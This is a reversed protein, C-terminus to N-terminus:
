RVGFAGFAVSTVFGQDSQGYIAQRAHTLARAPSLGTALHRHLENMLTATAIDPVPIVSAIVSRTGGAFLASTFGLLEDGPRATGVGSDCAALVMADPTSRLRELDYVTLPGSYLELSSFMPNDARLRGHCAFHALSAGDLASMVDDNSDQGIMTAGPHWAASATIEDDAAVLRPGSCFVAREDHSPEPRLLLSASPVVTVVTDLESDPMTSLTAWPVAHLAAPAVIVVDGADGLGAIPRILQDSLVSLSREASARAATRVSTPVDNRSLRRLSFALKQQENAVAAATAELTWLRFRGGTTSVAALRGDVIVYSLLTRDGLAALIATTSPGADVADEQVARRTLARVRDELEIQRRLLSRQAGEELDALQLRAVVGRLDDLLESAGEPLSGRRLCAQARWAESAALVQRAGGRELALRLGITSLAEGHMSAATRLETSGLAARHRRLVRLGTAVSRRAKALDHARSYWMSDALWVMSQELAPMSRSHAHLVSRHLDAIGMDDLGLAATFAGFHAAAIANPQDGAGVLNATDSLRRLGRRNTAADSLLVLECSRAGNVQGLRTKMTRTLRAIERARDHRGAAQSARMLIHGSEARTDLDARAAFSWALEAAAYAEEHLNGWLCTWARAITTWTQVRHGLEKANREAQDLMQLAQPLEGLAALILAANRLASNADLSPPGSGYFDLTKRVADLAIRYQGHELALTSVLASADARDRDSLDSRDALMGASRLAEDHQGARALVWARQFELDFSPRGTSASVAREIFQLSTALRGALLMIGSASVYIGETVPGPALFGATRVAATIQHRAGDIDGSDLALLALVRQALGRAPSRRDSVAVCAGALAGAAQPDTGRLGLARRADELASDPRVRPDAMAAREATPPMLLGPVPAYECDSEHSEIFSAAAVYRWPLRLM